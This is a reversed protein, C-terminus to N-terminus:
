SEASLTAKFKRWIYKWGFSNAGLVNEHHQRYYGTPEPIYGIVGLSSAILAIWWDHMLVESPIPSVLSALARNFICSGGTVINQVLLNNM